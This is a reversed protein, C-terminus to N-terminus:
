AGPTEHKQLCWVGQDLDIKHDDNRLRSLQPSLSERSVPQGGDINL